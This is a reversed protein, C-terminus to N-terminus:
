TIKEDDDPPWLQGKESVREKELSKGIGKEASWGWVTWFSKLSKGLGAPISGPRKWVPM